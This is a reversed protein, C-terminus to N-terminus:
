DGPGYPRRFVMLLLGWAGVWTYDMSVGFIVGVLFFFFDRGKEAWGAFLRGTTIMQSIFAKYNVM